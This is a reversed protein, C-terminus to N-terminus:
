AKFIIRPLNTGVPLQSPTRYLLTHSNCTEVCDVIFQSTDIKQPNDASLIMELLLQRISNTWWDKLVKDIREFWIQFRTVKQKM